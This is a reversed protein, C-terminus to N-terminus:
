VGQRTQKNTAQIRWVSAGLADLEADHRFGIYRLPAVGSVLVYGILKNVISHLLILADRMSEGRGGLDRAVLMLDFTVTENVSFNRMSDETENVSDSVLVGVFPPTYKSEKMLEDVTGAWYRVNGSLGTITELRTILADCQAVYTIEPM